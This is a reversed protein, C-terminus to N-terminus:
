IRRDSYKFNRMSDVLSLYAKRGGNYVLEWDSKRFRWIESVGLKSYRTFAITLIASSAFYSSMVALAAGPLGILPLLLWLMALNILMGIAVAISGIGPHNTGLLYPVFVKCTSRFFTGLALIQVLPASPLFAPSFLVIIIPKAFVAVIFLLFGCILATLRSCQAILEKKGHQDRAVRPILVTTLADPIMMAKFTLQSAITFLGIDERKAFLALIITGVQMNMLNSIKGLHYKVGYCFMEFFRKSSPRVWSIGYKYRFLSLCALITVTSGALNGLLAGNVGWKLVWVFIVTFILISLINLISMLAYSSFQHISTFLNIFILSFLLTPILWLSIYFSIPTAKDFFTFDFQMLILGVVMALASGIAGYILTYIVGESLTFKKSSVFYISAADCGVVFIVSLITAYVLCVAYSGRGETGLFWALCSQTAITLILGIIKALFTVSLDRVGSAM